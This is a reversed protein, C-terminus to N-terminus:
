SWLVTQLLKAAKRFAAARHSIRNKLDDGVIAVTCCFRASRKEPPIGKLAALLRLNNAHYDGQRGAFRASFIGPAGNLAEVELGSDDGLTWLGTHDYVTRAKILANERFSSGTEAIELIQPFDQLDLITLPLFDLIRRIEGAKHRNRTALVIRQKTMKDAM